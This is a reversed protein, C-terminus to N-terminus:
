AGVPGTGSTATVWTECHGGDTAAVFGILRRPPMWEPREAPLAFGEAWLCDGMDTGAEREFWRCTACSKVM